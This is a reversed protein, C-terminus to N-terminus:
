PAIPDRPCATQPTTNKTATIAAADGSRRVTLQRVTPQPMAM